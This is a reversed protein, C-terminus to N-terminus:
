QSRTNITAFIPCDSCEMNESNRNPNNAIILVVIGIGTLTLIYLRVKKMTKIIGIYNSIINNSISLQFYM